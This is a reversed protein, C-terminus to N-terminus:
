QPTRARLGEEKLKPRNPADFEGRKDGQQHGSQRDGPREKQDQLQVMKQPITRIELWGTRL